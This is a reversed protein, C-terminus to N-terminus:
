MYMDKELIGHNLLKLIMIIVFGTFTSADNSGILKPKIGCNNKILDGM